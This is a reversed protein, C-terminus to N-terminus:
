MLVQTVWVGDRVMPFAAVVLYGLADSVHDLGSSKDPFHTGEKFTLSQLSRILNKCKRDIFLRPRRNANQLLANVSNIRDVV